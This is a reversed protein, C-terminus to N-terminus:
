RETQDTRPYTKVSTAIRKFRHENGTRFEPIVEFVGVFRYLTRNLEDRSRAMVIRTKWPEDYVHQPDKNIESIITGDDSLSNDWGPQDYLRPFWVMCKGSLGIADRVHTPINWVGRQMHGKNYGFCNLADKHTWFAAHPGIEIRGAELHPHATFRHEYDWKLFNGKAVAQAKRRRVEEIFADINANLADITTDSAPIRVEELEAAEAIDFRRRADNIKAEENSHHGEDIELYLGLQPLFFDALYFGRDKRRICQQCVFEIEPDDLRHYIRNIVYHEWRKKSIRSLSRLIFDTKKM